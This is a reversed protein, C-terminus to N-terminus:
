SCMPAATVAFNEIFVHDLRYGWGDGIDLGITATSANTGDIILDRILGSSNATRDSGDGATTDHMYFGANGQCMVRTKAGIGSLAAKHPIKIVQDVYFTGEALWAFSASNLANNIDLRDTASSTDGSPIIQTVNQPSTQASAPRPGGLTTGAVAALSVAGGTLLARRAPHPQNEPQASKQTNM